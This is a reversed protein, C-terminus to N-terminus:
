MLVRKPFVELKMVELAEVVLAVVEFTEPVCVSPFRITVPEDVSADVVKVFAVKCVKPAVVILELVILEVYIELEAEEVRALVVTVLIVPFMPAKVVSMALTSENAFIKEVVPNKVFIKAEVVLAVVELEIVFLKM